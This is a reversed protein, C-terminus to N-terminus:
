LAHNEEKPIWLELLFRPSSEIRMTGGCRECLRRLNGLGGGERLKGAPPRGNNTFRVRWGEGAEEASVTLEDGEAHRFTNTTCESLACRLVSLAPEAEPLPGELLVRVGVDAAAQLEARYGREAGPATEGGEQLLRLSNQWSKLLEPRATPDRLALYRRAALLAGGLEDHIKVKAALLEKEKAAEEALEGFRLLRDRQRELRQREEELLRNLATEETVDAATLEWVREGRLEKERRRFCFSRGDPLTLIPDGERTVVTFRGRPEERSVLRWLEEGNLVTSGCLALSLANVADNALLVRGGARYFCLGTPLDNVADSVSLPTLRHRRVRRLDLLALTLVGAFLVVLLLASWPPLISFLYAAPNLPRAAYDWRCLEIYCELHLLSLFFMIGCPWTMTRPRRLMVARILCGTWGIFLLLALFLLLARLPAGPYLVTM